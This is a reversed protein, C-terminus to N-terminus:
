LEQVRVIGTVDGSTYSLTTLFRSVEVGAVYERETITSIDGGSYTITASSVLVTHTNDTFTEVLTVNGSSYTVVSESADDIVRELQLLSKGSPHQQDFLFFKGLHRYYGVTLDRTESAAQVYAGASELADELPKIPTPYPSDDADSGGLENRESKFVQVKHVGISM